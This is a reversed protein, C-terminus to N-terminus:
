GALGRYLGIWQRTVSEPTFRSLYDRYGSDVIRARLAPTTIVARIVAALAHPDDAPVLMGNEGDRIHARPGESDCAILPTRTSWADLIVTGFPEYRSPLLCVDAARLLAGRDTRWGLFRVREAVGLERALGELAAAMPGDGALWLYADPLEVLARIACDLGKTAHLRSLTLLVPAEAPTDMAARDLAQQADVSPFTPIYSSRDEPFGHERMHRVLDPTCGILHTCHSFHRLVEYDGFWGLLAARGRASAPTLSAARRMWCHIIDPKERAILRAMRLRQLPRLRAAFIGPAMRLGRAQLLQFRPAAPRMVVCQDVGAAHLNLMVDTSYLEAGGNGKGAMIQLVRM